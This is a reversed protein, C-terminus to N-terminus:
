NRRIRDRFSERLKAVKPAVVVACYPQRPNNAFYDQHYGEAPWFTPAPLVQTVIPDPWIRQQDLADIVDRAIKEQAPSYTFIVSRYQEGVDNGQRNLTTPDHATFFALLLTRYDIVQPDFEFRVVEAHGTNGGCIAEYSPNDVHGGAYGSVASIVGGLQKLAAEVCWFCGGGLLAFEHGAAHATATDDQPTHSLAREWYEDRM